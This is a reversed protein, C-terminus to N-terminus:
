NEKSLKEKMPTIVVGLVDRLSHDLVEFGCKNNMPAKDWVILVAMELLQSLNTHKKEEFSSDNVVILPIKFWLHAARERSLLLSAIGFSAVVFM